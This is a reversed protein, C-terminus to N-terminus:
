DKFCCRDIIILTQKQVQEIESYPLVAFNASCLIKIFSGSNANGAEAARVLSVFILTIIEDRTIRNFGQKAQTVITKPEETNEYVWNDLSDKLLKLM